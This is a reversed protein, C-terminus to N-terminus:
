TPEVDEGTAVGGDTIKVLTNPDLMLRYFEEAEAQEAADEETPEEVPIYEGVHVYNGAPDQITVSKMAEEFDIEMSSKQESM